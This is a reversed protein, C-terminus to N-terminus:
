PQDELHAIVPTTTTGTTVDRPAGPASAGPATAMVACISGLVAVLFWCLARRVPSM